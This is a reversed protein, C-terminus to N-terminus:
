KLDAKPFYTIRLNTCGYPELVLPLKETVTHKEKAPELTKVPYPPYLYPAKYCHTHLRILPKEWAYGDHDLEEIEIDEHSLNEDLVINWSIADRRRGTDEHFDGDSPENYRPTVNYWSWGDPLPTTPNGEFANWIEPIHYSYLLAGYKIALPYKKSANSDDVRIVRPTTKFDIELVDNQSWDRYVEAYGCDNVTCEVEQGNVKIKFSEAWLPIKLFMSFKGSCHMIFSSNNRFPYLTKEEIDINGFKLKCPGYASVYINKNDDYFIMDRIFEPVVAVANIPCCAVIVCPAYVQDMVTATSSENTAYIQNPASLYAIAKEDKKRAGQAANYFMEEMYDGYESNGTIYSLYAYTANFFAFNCYESETNMGVPGLFESVSVPAGSLHVANERLLKLYRETAYLYKEKGTVSYLLAPLRVLVGLGATHMVSYEFDNEALAKYSNPYISKKCQFEAFEESFELLRKDETIRYCYVMIEILYPAAYTTKNDGKWAECFWLMCRYVAEFVDKRGTVEYFALLGRMGCATSWANYDDFIDADKEYYTGLYGDARQNKLMDNVWKEAREKMEDDDLIFAHQIYGTWYNGSIEGGWGSQNGESWTHVYKKDVWPDAIMEPELKFLNGAIGNKGKALQEKLFGEAKIAGLPLRNLKNYTKM